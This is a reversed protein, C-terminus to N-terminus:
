AENHLLNPSLGLQKRVEPDYTATEWNRASKIQEPTFNKIGCLNAGELEASSLNAEYFDAGTFESRRLNAECLNARRFYTGKFNSVSLNVGELNAQSLIAGNLQIGSLNAGSLDILALSVGDRALDELAQKRAYSFRENAGAAANDIVQWAEYHKQAKRDPIEKFYLIVAALIAISEASQVLVSLGDCVSVTYQDFFKSAKCTSPANNDEHVWLTLGGILVVALSVFLWTPITLLIKEIRNFPKPRPM